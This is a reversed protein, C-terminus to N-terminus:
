DEATVKRGRLFKWFQGMPILVCTCGDLKRAMLEHGLILGIGVNVADAMSRRLARQLYRNSEGTFHENTLEYIVRSRVDFFNSGNLPEYIHNPIARLRSPFIRRAM